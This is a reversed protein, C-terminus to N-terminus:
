SVALRSTTANLGPGMTVMYEHPMV